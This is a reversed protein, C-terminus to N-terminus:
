FQAVESWIEYSIDMTPSAKSAGFLCDSELLSYEVPSLTGWIRLQLFSWCSM